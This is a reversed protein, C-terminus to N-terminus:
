DKIILFLLTLVFIFIFYGIFNVAFIFDISGCPRTVTTKLESIITGAFIV